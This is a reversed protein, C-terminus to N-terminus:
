YFPQTIYQDLNNHPEKNLMSEVYKGIIDFELNVETGENYKNIITNNLSHPIIAVKFYHTSIEATTLSVGDVAISGTHALYKRFESPYTIYYEASNGNRVIRQIYGTTDIHGQVIHGGLRTTPTAALELNVASGAQLHKSTTKLLTENVAEVSFINSNIETLTQCVGNVSISDGIKIDPFAVETSIAIRKGGSISTISVVKGIRDIIGTFM